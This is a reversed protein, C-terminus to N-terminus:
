LGREPVLRRRRRHPENLVRMVTATDLAYIRLLGEAYHRGQTAACDIAREVAWAAAVNTRAKLEAQTHEGTTTTRELADRVAPHVSDAQRRPGAKSLVRMATPRHVGRRRLYHWASVCGWQADLQLAADIVRARQSDSRREIRGRERVPTM